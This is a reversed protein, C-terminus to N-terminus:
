ENKGNKIVIIEDEKVKILGLKNKAIEDVRDLRILESKKIKLQRIDEQLAKKRNKLEEIRYGARIVDIHHWLYFMISAAFLFIAFLYILFSDNSNKKKENM